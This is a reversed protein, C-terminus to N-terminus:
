PFAYGRRRAFRAGLGVALVAVSMGIAASLDRAHPPAWLHTACAVAAALIFATQPLRTRNFLGQIVCGYVILSGTLYALSREPLTTAFAAHLAELFIVAVFGWLPLRVFLAPFSFTHRLNLHRVTSMPIRAESRLWWLSLFVLSFVGVYLLLAPIM